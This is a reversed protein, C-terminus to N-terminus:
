RTKSTRFRRAVRLATPAFAVVSIRISFRWILRVDRNRGPCAPVGRSAKRLDPGHSALTEIGKPRLTPGHRSLRAVRLPTPVITHRGFDPRPKQYATLLFLPSVVVALFAAWIVNDGARYIREAEVQLEVIDDTAQGSVVCRGGSPLEGRSLMGHIVDITSTEYAPKGARERLKSLSPVKVHAGCACSMSTGAQAAQVALTQGCRCDVSFEVGRSLRRGGLAIVLVQPLCRCLGLVGTDWTIMGSDGSRALTGLGASRTCLRESM